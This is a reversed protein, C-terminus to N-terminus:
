SSLVYHNNIGLSWTAENTIMRLLFFTIMREGGGGVMM